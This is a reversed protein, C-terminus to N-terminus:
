NFTSVITDFLDNKENLDTVYPSNPFKSKIKEILQIRDDSNLTISAFAIKNILLPYDHNNDNQLSNIKEICDVSEPINGLKLYCALLNVLNKISDTNSSSTLEEFFYYSNKVNAISDDNLNKSNPTILGLWAIAFDLIISDSYHSKLNKIENLDIDKNEVSSNKFLLYIYSELDLDPSSLNIEINSKIIKKYILALSLLNNDISDLLEEDIVNSKKFNVFSNIVKIDNVLLDATKSDISNEENKSMVLTELSNLLETAESYKELIIFSRIKYFNAEIEYLVNTFDFESELDLSIIDSYKGSYYQQIITYLEKEPILYM